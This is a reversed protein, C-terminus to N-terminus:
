AGKGKGQMPSIQKQNDELGVTNAYQNPTGVNPQGSTASNTIVGQSGTKGGGSDKGQGPPRQMQNLQNVIFGM